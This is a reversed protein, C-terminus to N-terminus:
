IYDSNWFLEKRPRSSRRLNGERVLSEEQLSNQGLSVEEVEQLVQVDEALGHSPNVESMSYTQQFKSASTQSWLKLKFSLITM